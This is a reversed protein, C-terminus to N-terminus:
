SQATLLNVPEPISLERLMAVADNICTGVFLVIIGLTVAGFADVRLVGDSFEM